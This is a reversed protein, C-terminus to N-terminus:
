GNSEEKNEKIMKLYADPDAEQIENLLFLGMDRRGEKFFTESNGTFSTKYIGARELLRWLLRRGGDLNLVAQLDAVEDDRTISLRTSRADVKGADGADVAKNKSKGM